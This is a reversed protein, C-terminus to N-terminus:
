FICLRVLVIFFLIIIEIRLDARNRSLSSLLFEKGDKGDKGDTNDSKDLSDFVDIAETTLQAVPETTYVENMDYHVSVM